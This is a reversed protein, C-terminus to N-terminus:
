SRLMRMVSEADIADDDILLLYLEAVLGSQTEALEGRLPVDLAEGV